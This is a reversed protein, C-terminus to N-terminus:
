HYVFVAPFLTVQSSSKSRVVFSLPHHDITMAIALLTGHKKALTM